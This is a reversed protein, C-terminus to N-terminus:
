RSERNSRVKAAEEKNTYIVNGSYDDHGCDKLAARWDDHIKLAAKFKEEDTYTTCINGEWLDVKQELGHKKIVAKNRAFNDWEHLLINVAESESLGAGGQSLPKVLRPYSMYTAPAFHGIM